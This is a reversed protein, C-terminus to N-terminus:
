NDSNRDLPAGPVKPPSREPRQPADTGPSWLPASPAWIAALSSFPDYVRAPQAPFGPPPRLAAGGWGWAGGWVGGYGSSVGACEELYPDNPPSVFPAADAPPSARWAFDADPRPVVSQEGNFYFLSNDAPPPRRRVDSGIPPLPAPEPGAGGGRAVVSSWSAGWRLGGAAAAPSARAGVPGPSAPARECRRKSSKERRAHHKPGVPRPRVIAGDSDRRPRDRERRAADGGERRRREERGERADEPRLPSRRKPTVEVLPDGDAGVPTDSLSRKERGGVDDDDVPEREEVPSSSSSSSSSSASSTSITATSGLDEDSGVLREETEPDAEYGDNTMELAAATPTEASVAPANESSGSPGRDPEADESSRSDEDEASRLVNSRWREFARREAQPDSPVPPRRATRRRRAPPRPPLCPPPPAPAPPEAALARLDLPARLPPASLRPPRSRRLEREADIAAAALVLVFVALALLTGTTRMTSDFPPRLLASHCRPLLAAPAVALLSFEATSHIYLRLPLLAPPPPRRPYTPPALALAPRLASLRLAAEAAAARATPLRLPVDGTNRVSVARRLPQPACDRLELVLAAPSGAARGALEFRPHAGRGWLQVGEIITLNNRLYLYTTLAAAENPTFTIKLEVEADPALLLPPLVQPSPRATPRPPAGGEGPSWERALGRTSRWESLAFADHTWVCQESKCHPSEVADTLRLDVPALVPQLVLPLASPNRARLRLTTAAGLPAPGAAGAAAGAGAAQDTHVHLSINVHTHALAAYQAFRAAHLAADAELGGAGRAAWAAGEPERLDLGTYCRPACLREPAFLVRGAASRGSWEAGGGESVFWVAPEPEPRSVNVLRMGVSMSNELVLAASAWVYPAAYGFHLPHVLLRGALARLSLRTEHLAHETRVRLRGRLAAPRAPAHVTLRARAAHRPAVCAGDALWVSVGPLDAQAEVVCLPRPGPNRLRAWVVTRTSTGVAGLRLEEASSHEAPWEWELLLQGSYLHLPLTYHTLNTRVTVNADLLLGPQLGRLRLSGLRAQEGAGLVMPTASEHHFHELVEPPYHLGTIHLPVPFENHVRIEREELAKKEDATIFLLRPPHLALTGALVRVSYRARARGVRLWGGCWAQRAAGAAAAWMEGYDLTVRGVRRLPQHPELRSTELSLYVGDSENEFSRSVKDRVLAPSTLSRARVQVPHATPNYLTLLPEVTANLPVRVGVLPWVGWESAVGEASVPYKFVGLSTHIYLHASAPGEHRGLYVVSFTTNAQPALTKSEFFSAHFDPTTGAVSALHITTNALNTLTVRRAHPEALAARGFELSPPQLWIGEAGRKSDGAESGWEQFSIGEILSDHLTVGHSKGQASLRTKLSIDLLTLVFVYCWVIKRYM